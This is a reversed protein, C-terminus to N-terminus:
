SKELQKPWTFEKHNIHFARDDLYIDAFIKRKALNSYIGQGKYINSNVADFHLGLDACFQVAETLYKDERCTWLIILDGAKQCTILKNFLPLFPNGIYPFVNECLTGDFDVAIIM